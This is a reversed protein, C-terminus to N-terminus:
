GERLVTALADDVSRWVGARGGNNQIAQLFAAQKPSVRGTDTKVEGALFQGITQGVMAPVILTKVLGFTDSFGPPLGTSFPRANRLVVDGANVRVVGASYIKVPQESSTWGSGVNVRFLLCKGALANRIANQLAHESPPSANLLM